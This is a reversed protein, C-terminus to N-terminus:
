RLLVRLEEAAPRFSPAAKELAELEKMAVKRDGRDAADLAKGFRAVTKTSVEERQATKPAAPKPAAPRPAAPKASERKGSRVAKTANTNKQHVALLKARLKDALDAELSMFDSEPRTSGVSKTTGTEVDIVKADVRLKGRFSFYGGTVLYRAGLLKGIKNATSRDIKRTKGLELEKLVAELDTREILTLGSTDSLDTVLMHALGKRLFQMEEDAGSYDFYLIAVRASSTSEAAKSQAHAVAGAGFLPLAVLAFATIWLAFAPIRPRAPSRHSM